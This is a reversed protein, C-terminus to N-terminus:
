DTLSMDDIVDDGTKKTKPEGGKTKDKDPEPEQDFVDKKIGKLEDIQDDLFKNYEDEAKGTDEPKFKSQNLNIFKMQEEDLGRKEKQAELWSSTKTQIIEIAQKAILDGQEKVKKEHEKILEEKTADFGENIRRKRTILSKEFKEELKEVHEEIMPDKTLDGIGFIDSPMLNEAKIFSRVESITIDSVSGGGKNHQTKDAFAQISSLLSAGPFGPRNVSSDGLAIGTIDEVNADYIGSDRDDSLIVDAEISAVDLKLDRYEPKIYAIAIASLNDDIIQKAKGVIHGIVGRGSHVNTKAHKHFIKTGYQLKQVIKEIASAFWRKVVDGAGVVKGESIGEHGIVYARFVPHQDKTKIEEYVNAPIHSLIESSAMEMITANFTRIIM